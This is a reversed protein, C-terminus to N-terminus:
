RRRRYEYSKIRGMHKLHQIITQLCVIAAESWTPQLQIFSASYSSDDITYNFGYGHEDSYHSVVAENVGHHKMGHITFDFTEADMSAGHRGYECCFPKEQDSM